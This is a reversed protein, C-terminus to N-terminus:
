FRAAILRPGTTKWQALVMAPGLPRKATRRSWSEKVQATNHGM